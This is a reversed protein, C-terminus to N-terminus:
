HLFEDKLSSVPDGTPVLRKFAAVAVERAGKSTSPVVLVSNPAEEDAGGEVRLQVFCTLSDLEMFLGRDDRFRNRLRFRVDLMDRGNIKHAKM